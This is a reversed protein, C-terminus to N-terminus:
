EISHESALYEEIVDVETTTLQQGYILLEALDGSFYGGPTASSRSGITTQAGDDGSYDIAGPDTTDGTAVRNIRTSVGSSTHVGSLLYPTGFTLTVGQSALGEAGSYVRMAPLPSSEEDSVSLDYSSYPASWTENGYYDRSVLKNSSTVGSVSLASFISIYSPKLLDSYPFKLFHGSTFRVAPGGMTSSEIYRPRLSLASQTPNLNNGSQDPMSLVPSNNALSLAGARLWM